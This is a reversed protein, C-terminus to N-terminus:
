KNPIKVINVSFSVKEGDTANGGGETKWGFLISKNKPIINTLQMNRQSSTRSNIPFAHYQEGGSYTLDASSDSIVVTLDFNNANGRNKNIIATSSVDTGSTGTADFVQTCILDTPTITQPDIYIRTVEYVFDQENNTIQMFGGSAAAATHCEAHIIFSNGKESQIGESPVSQSLVILQNDDNVKAKLGRGTGDIIQTQM